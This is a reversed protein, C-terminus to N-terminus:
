RETREWAASQTGSCFRIFGLFLAINMSVFYYPLGFLKVKLKLSSLIKGGIALTYFVAQLLFAVAYLPSAVLFANAFLTCILFFPAFWRLVKHSFYAFAPFGRRPDLLHWTRVLAQFDGAGIRIRREMEQVIKKSTEEYAIAEPGYAVKYGKELIRMPILFDDIIIDKDLPEFLNKRIAYIGGNAGLLSGMSGEIKKLFQEYRWYVGELNGTDSEGANRFILEGCVCGINEDRFGRVLKAIADKKYITNADSFVIIEGTSSAVLDNLVSIKGRRDVWKLLKVGRSTYSEIIQNTNDTSGDSGILIELKEKPYDSDLINQIRDGIVKEENYASVIVTVTLATRQVGYTTCRVDYLTSRIRSILALILPYVTYSYVVAGASVWFIVKIM